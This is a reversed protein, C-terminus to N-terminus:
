GCVERGFWYLIFTSLNVAIYLASIAINRHPHPHLPLKNPSKTKLDQQVKQFERRVVDRTVRPSIHLRDCLDWLHKVPVEAIRCLYGYFMYLGKREVFCTVAIEEGRPGNHHITGPLPRACSSRKKAAFFWKSSQPSHFQCLRYKSSMCSVWVSTWIRM